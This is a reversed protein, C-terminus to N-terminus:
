PPAGQDVWANIIDRQAQQLLGGIPMPNSANNVRSKINLTALKASNYVTLDLSSSANSGKHCSFCYTAFLGGNTALQAYTVAGIPAPNTNGGPNPAGTTSTLRQWEIAIMDTTAPPMAAFANAAGASLNVDTMASIIQDINAYTTVESQLINNIYINLARAQYSDSTTNKLRLTPNRFEYGKTVGGIVSRRIEIGAILPVKRNGQTELDWEMRMFTTALKESVQKNTSKVSFSNGASNRGTESSCTTYETQAAAWYSKLEAIHAINHSGTYPPKHADNVAQNSIKDAGISSFSTYSTVVDSSAFAGLGPGNIHCSNCTQTLFPYYTSAYVKLLADECSEGPARSYLVSGDSISGLNQTVFGEGCNNFAVLLVIAGILLLMHKSGLNTKM